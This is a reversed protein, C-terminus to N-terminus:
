TAAKGRNAGQNCLREEDASNLHDGCKADTQVFVASFHSVLRYSPHALNVLQM